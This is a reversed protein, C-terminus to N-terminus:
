INKKSLILLCEEPVAQQVQTRTHKELIENKKFFHQMFTVDIPMKEFHKSVVPSRYRNKRPRYPSHLKTRSHM